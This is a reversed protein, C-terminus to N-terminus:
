PGGEPNLPTLAAAREAKAVQPDSWSGTVNYEFSILQEIPDKLLKQAVFAAVGAVPGGLLAGAISVSESLHPTVRVRLRQTESALDVDGSKVVRAAPGTIRFNDTSAIGRDIKVPGSIADFAFGESFIDRFDLTIRRPLSQLSIIGLLKAIGPELKLFQGKAAELALQGSLTPYDFDSPAGLWSLHGDIKATGGRIGAPYNWRTLTRGIDKVDLHISLQTRPESLWSQWVGEATLVSDPASFRLREIRWDREQHVANLELKGLQKEGYQFQDVTVDLAPLELPKSTQKSVAVPKGDSAPLNLKKLRATLRGKGAGRWTVGGEIEPGALVFETADGHPSATVALDNFRRGFFDVEGLKVDAGALAFSADTGTSTSDTRGFALWDDFDFTKLAGSIWVGPRSPEGADGGGFRIVGREVIAQKVESRRVVEAKVIDGYALSIRDHQGDMYRREIRLPVSEAAAKVFPAPLSSSIGQLNSEIVLDPVKKRLTLMGRWEASGRLQQMWSPAGAKRLNDVNVRGQLTARLSSDRQTGGSLTVPGGLFVGSVSPVRVTNETFEIRGTAQELPAITREFVIHNGSFAFSGAVKSTPMEGLPLTLKLALRGPGQAQMGETFRDIMQTVPSKAIFALFDATAGEGEGSITLVEPHATMDPIEGQVNQVSVGAITGRRTIFDMRTGRFQLDGEINEFRPWGEAYDLTGDVIKATLNFLGRKEDTYPFDGLRGKLRFRVDTSRGSVLARELWPRVKRLETLPIYRPIVRADARSLSGTLDIDGHGQAATRYSGFITGAADANAFTLKGLRGEIRNGARTWSLQATLTDFNLPSAFTEPMDLVAATGTVHLTGGKESGDIDGSIGSLGPFKGRASLAFGEFRGRVSYRRLDPWAGTWRVILDHVRGQPSFATLEARLSDEIPLRDALMVLPPLNFANAQLEGQQL